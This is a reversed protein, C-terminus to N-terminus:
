RLGMEGAIEAVIDAAIQVSPVLPHTALALLAARRERTVAARVALEEYAKVHQILGRIEPELPAQPLPLAGRADVRCPVEVVADSPLERVAGGNRVDVVLEAGSDGAVAEIIEIAAHSYYAGGRRALAEPKTSTAPDAYHALLEREIHMVEAARPEAATRQAELAERHLFFYRVYDSPIMGLARVLEAPYGLEPINAPRGERACAAELLRPLVDEGDVIVRRVFSLHNLGVSDLRVARVEVGLLRALDIRLGIPINCLGVARVGSHGLLAQTVISVPNTFDVLLAEPARREVVSAIRLLEPVTRLAKCFGGVGTTEQGLLGYRAPLTEDRLRAEQGGVRIQVVVFAAGDVAEELAPCARLAVASGQAALMRGVFGGVIALRESQTDFLAIEELGLAAARRGLGECLEPSYTSGGGVVAIKV